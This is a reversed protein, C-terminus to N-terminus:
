NLNGMKRANHSGFYARVYRKGLACTQQVIYALGDVVLNLARVHLYTGVNGLLVALIILDYVGYHRVM